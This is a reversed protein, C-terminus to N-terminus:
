GVLQSDYIKLGMKQIMFLLFMHALVDESEFLERGFTDLLLGSNKFFVNPTANKTFERRNTNLANRDIKLSSNSPTSQWVESRENVIRYFLRFSEFPAQRTLAEFM